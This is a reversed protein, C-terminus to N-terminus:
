LPLLSISLRNLPFIAHYGYQMRTIRTISEHTLGKVKNLEYRVHGFIRDIVLIDRYITGM